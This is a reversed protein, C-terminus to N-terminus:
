QAWGSRVLVVNNATREAINWETAGCVDHIEYEQEGDAFEVVILCVASWAAHARLRYLLEISTGETDLSVVQFNAGVRAILDEITVAVGLTEVFRAADEWILRHEDETTSVLDTPSYWFTRLGPATDILANVCVIDPRDAYLEALRHFPGAAGEVCVGAWGQEALWRTNSCETGDFAGIDLFRGATLQKAFAEIHKQEGSQSYDRKM